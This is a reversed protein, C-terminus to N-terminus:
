CRSTPRPALRNEILPHQVRPRQRNYSSTLPHFLNLLDVDEGDLLKRYISGFLYQAATYSHYKEVYERGARGLARRLDSDGVLVRLNDLLNEPTTSLIPCEDLFSHRRFIRTYTENHLNSMVPLGMTMGEIAALGYGPLLFQDALIDAEKMLERVKDNPMKEALVLEIDLGEKRLQEVVSFLYETGKVGRHNPVHLVKVPGNQGDADSYATKSIWLSVDICVKNGPAVEWRGIGDPTFGVVLVDGNRVWYRVRRAVKDERQGAEPYSLMLAHRVTPDAIQSYLFADAGYPLLVTRVNALRYLFAELRWIPTKGLAGGSLPIHVVAAHFTIYLHAVIPALGRALFAPRLGRVLDEFYLDFDERRNIAGYYTAMLTRSEWGVERMALSWYKNSIIPDTGWLLARKRRRGHLLNLPVLIALASFYVLSALCM